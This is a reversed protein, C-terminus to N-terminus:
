TPPTIYPSIDGCIKTIRQSISSFTVSAGEVETVQAVEEETVQTSKKEIEPTIKSTMLKILSINLTTLAEKLSADQQLDPPLIKIDMEVQELQELMQLLRLIKSNDTALITGINLNLKNIHNVVNM